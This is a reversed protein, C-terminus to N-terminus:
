KCLLTIYTGNYNGAMHLVTWTLVRAHVFSVLIM